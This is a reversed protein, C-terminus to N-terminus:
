LNSRCHVCVDSIFQNHFMHFDGEVHVSHGYICYSDSSDSEFGSLREECYFHLAFPHVYQTSNIYFVMRLKDKFLILLSETPWMAGKKSHLHCRISCIIGQILFNDRETISKVSGTRNDWSATPKTLRGLKQCDTLFM